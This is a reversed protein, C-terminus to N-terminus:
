LKKDLGKILIVNLFVNYGEDLAKFCYTAHWRFVHIKPRNKIKLPDPTLNASQSRAKREAM